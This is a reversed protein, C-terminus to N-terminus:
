KFVKESPRSEIGDKTATVYFRHVEGLDAVYVTYQTDGQDWTIKYRVSDMLLEIMKSLDIFQDRQGDIKMGLSDLEARFNDHRADVYEVTAYGLDRIDTCRCLVVCVAVIAFVMMPIAIYTIYTKSKM